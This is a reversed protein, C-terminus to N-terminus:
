MKGEGILQFKARAALRLPAGPYAGSSARSRYSAMCFGKRDQSRSMADLNQPDVEEPCAQAGKFASIQARDISLLPLDAYRLVQQHVWGEIEGVGDLFDVLPM